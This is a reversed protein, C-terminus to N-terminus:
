AETGPLKDNIFNFHDLSSINQYREPRQLSANAVERKVTGGSEMGHGRGMGQCFYWEVPRAFDKQDLFILFLQIIRAIRQLAVSFYIM